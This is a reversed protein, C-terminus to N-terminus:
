QVVISGKFRPDLHDHYTWTGNLNFTFSFTENQKLGKCADFKSKFCGAPLQEWYEPYQNHGPHPDTSPWHNVTDKNVFTVTEGTSITLTGPNFGASTIEIIKGEAPVEPPPQACGSVFIAAAVSFMLFPVFKFKM